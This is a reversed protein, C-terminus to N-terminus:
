SHELRPKAAAASATVARDSSASTRRTPVCMTNHPAAFLSPPAAAGLDPRPTDPRPVVRDADHDPKDAAALPTVRDDDDDPKPIDVKQRKPERGASGTKVAESDSEDSDEKDTRKALEAKLAQALFDSHDELNDAPKRVALHFKRKRSEEEASAPM